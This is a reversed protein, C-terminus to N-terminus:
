GKLDELLRKIAQQPSFRREAVENVVLEFRDEGVHDLLDLWL